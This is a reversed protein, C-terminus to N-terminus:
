SVNSGLIVMAQAMPLLGTANWFNFIFFAILDAHRANDPDNEAFREKVLKHCVKFLLKQIKEIDDGRKIKVNLSRTSFDGWFGPDTVLKKPEKVAIKAREAVRSCTYYMMRNLQAFFPVVEQRRGGHDTGLAQEAARVTLEVLFNGEIAAKGLHFRLQAEVSIAELMSDSLLVDEGRLQLM